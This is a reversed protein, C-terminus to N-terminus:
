RLPCLSVHRPVTTNWWWRQPSMEIADASQSVPALWQYIRSRVIRVPSVLQQQQHYHGVEGNGQPPSRDLSSLSRCVVLLINSQWTEAQESALKVSQATQLQHDSRWNALILADHLQWWPLFSLCPSEEKEEFHFSRACVGVLGM